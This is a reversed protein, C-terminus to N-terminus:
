AAAHEARWTRRWFARLSAPSGRVWAWLALMENWDIRGRGEEIEALRERDMNARAALDDLTWGAARRRRRILAGLRVDFFSPENRRRRTV